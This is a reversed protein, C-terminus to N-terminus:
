TRSFHTFFLSSVCGCTHCMSCVQETHSANKRGASSVLCSSHRWCSDQGCPQPYCGTVIQYVFLSLSLPPNKCPGLYMKIPTKEGSLVYTVEPLHPPLSHNSFIARTDENIINDVFFHIFHSHNYFFSWLLKECGLSNHIVIWETLLLVMNYNFIRCYLHMVLPKYCM